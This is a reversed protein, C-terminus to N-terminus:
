AAGWVTPRPDPRTLVEPLVPLLLDEFITKGAGRTIPCRQPRSHGIRQTLPMGYQAEFLSESIFHPVLLQDQGLPCLLIVDLYHSREQKHQVAQM